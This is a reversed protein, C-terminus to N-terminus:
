RRTSAKGFRPPREPVIRKSPPPWGSSDISRWEDEGDANKAVHCARGALFRSELHRTCCDHPQYYHNDGDVPMFDLCRM